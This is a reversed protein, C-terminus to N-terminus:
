ELIQIKIKRITEKVKNNKIKWLKTNKGMICQTFSQYGISLM